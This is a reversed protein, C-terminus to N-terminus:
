VCSSLNVFFTEDSEPATDGNVVVTVTKTTETAAFDLTTSAIATFDSPSTATGIATVYNVSSVGATDGSRTVTFDFNKTGSDGETM